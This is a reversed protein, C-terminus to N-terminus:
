RVRTIEVYYAGCEVDDNKNLFDIQLRHAGSALEREFCVSTDNMSVPKIEEIERITLRAKTINLAKGVPYVGGTSLDGWNHHEELSPAKGNGAQRAYESVYAPLGSPIAANAEKPWRRAVFRYTGKQHIKLNWYGHMDMGQRIDYQQSPNGKGELDLWDFCSLDITQFGSYGIDIQTQKELSPEVSKRWDRYFVLMKDRIDPHQSAINNRQGPDHGVHYLKNEGLLRWKNWLVAYGNLGRRKTSFQVVSMRKTLHQFEGRLTPTLNLGDLRDRWPDHLRCLDILTPLIDQVVVLDDIDRGASPLGKPWRLFCPVRHGGEWLQGKKGQMSANFQEIGFTGGNDSMFVLITDEKLGTRELFADLRGLNNDFNAIMGYFQETLEPHEKYSLTYVEPVFLPTHMSSTPLYVFFPKGEKQVRTIFKMTEDFWLDNCYGETQELKGDRYYVDDFGDNNWYNSSQWVSASPFTLTADFGRDMSRYPYVDGLHWKGFHGTVYGNAKFYEPMLHVKRPKGRADPISEFITSKGFGFNYAGNRIADIGTMLQSRTPTCIASTHFDTFRISEHYFRDLHPTKVYPNGHCAMDGYGQDDTVILVVNPCVAWAPLSALLILSTVALWIRCPPNM